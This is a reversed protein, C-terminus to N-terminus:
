SGSSSLRRALEARSNIGLKAYANAIHHEVTRASIQLRQGIERATLDANVLQIIEQERRTLGSVLVRRTQPVSESGLLFLEITDIVARADGFWPQPDGGDLEVLEANRIHRALYQSNEVAAIPDDRRCMVLTRAAIRNLSPAIDVQSIMRRADRRIGPRGASRSFRKSWEDVRKDVLLTPSIYNQFWSETPQVEVDPREPPMSFRASAGYLILESVRAANTAAFYAGLAGGAFLGFIAARELHNADMVARFDDATRELIPIGEAIPDSLGVGSRDFIVLSSFTALNELFSACSPEEWMLDLHSVTGTLMVIHPPGAGLVQYAVWGGGGKTYHVSPPREIM